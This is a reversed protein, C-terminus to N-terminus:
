DEQIHNGCYGGCGQGSTIGMDTFRHVVVGDSDWIKTMVPNM